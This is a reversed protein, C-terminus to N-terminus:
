TVDIIILELDITQKMLEYMDCPKLWHECVLMIDCENLLLSNVYLTKM